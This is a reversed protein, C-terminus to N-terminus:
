PYKRKFSKVRASATARLGSRDGRVLYQYGIGAIM